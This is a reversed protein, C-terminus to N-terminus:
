EGKWTLDLINYTTAANSFVIVEEGDGQELTGNSEHIHGFLHVRLLSETDEDVYRARNLYRSISEAGLHGGGPAYHEWKDLIGWPPTHTVLVHLDLPIKDVVEDFDPQHLEDSWFGCIYNIGRCGGFRCGDIEFVDGPRDIEYTSGGRFLPALPTFDHNGRVVIVPSDPSEFTERLSPRSEIWRRQALEMKPVDRKPKYVHFDPLMDGTCVYVDAEPLKEPFEGHWDSFHVIRM